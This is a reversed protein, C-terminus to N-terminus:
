CHEVGPMNAFLVALAYECYERHTGRHTDRERELELM